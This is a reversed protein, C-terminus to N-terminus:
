VTPNLSDCCAPIDGAIFWKTGVWRHYSERLATHGGRKPRFGHSYRNFQPEDYAELMLRLVEQRLKDSCTPVGLPRKKTSNKKEIYVRRVPKWQYREHRLDDILSAIKALSMGDVTEDTIGPTMAGPNRSIRGYAHLYLQPNSLQRYVDALPWGQKGREHLIGLSTAAHRLERVEGTPDGSM